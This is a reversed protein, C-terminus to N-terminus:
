RLAEAVETRLQGETDGATNRVRGNSAPELEYYFCLLRPRAGRAWPGAGQSSNNGRKTRDEHFAVLTAMWGQPAPELLTQPNSPNKLHKPPM